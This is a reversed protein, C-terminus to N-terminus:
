RFLRATEPPVAIGNHYFDAGTYNIIVEVGGSYTNLVVGYQLVQRNLWELTRVHSLIASVKEYTEIIIDKYISFETSYFNLSNTLALYHAPSHTVVFSPSVNYDIMRLMDQRTYFSFNSYPAYVEMSNHLVMQLFPVTDTSILFQTNFVPANLFRHTYAWIYMNPQQANILLTSDRFAEQIMEISMSASVWDNRGWHTILTDTIGRVTMSVAGLDAARRSQRVFWDISRSPRAFSIERVPLFMQTAAWATLGWRNRHLAQNRSLRMQHSNIRLYDQSFSIDAGLARTDSLLNRFDRRTGIARQFRITWPRGTSEGGRQFGMMGGNISVVGADYLQRVMDNVQNATTTVVNTRGLVSNRVDSMLFDVRIPMPGESVRGPTLIGQGVLHNRYARAMGVHNANEGYLFRYHISINLHRPLDLARFFGDGLRNYVQHFVSNFIFRPYVFNYYTINNHPNVIIEMYQAGSDVWAIFAQQNYGHTVGFVPMLPNPRPVYNADDNYHFMAEAPDEGFVRGIYPTLSVTNEQFRMLAGSGDPVFIYGPLMPVRQPDGHSGTEFDFYSRVGGSAGMFPTILVAALQSIQTGTIESYFIEYTIGVDSLLIHVPIFVDVTTFRVDLRFHHDAVRVLNSSAGERAASSTRFINYVGDFWEITILSNALATWTANLRTQVPEAVLRLEEETEAAAIIGPMDLGFPADLGTRWVFRGHVCKALIIDRDHRFYYRIDGFQGLFDYAHMPIDDFVAVGPPMRTTRSNPLFVAYTTTPLFVAIALVFCILTKFWTRSM